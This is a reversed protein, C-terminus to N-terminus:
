SQGRIDNFSACIVDELEDLEQGIMQERRDLIRGVVLAPIAVALGMQTSILAVSIGGAIGGSQSFLSMTGLSDFTEIMGTVTGLLGALPAAAVISKVLTSFRKMDSKLSGFADDLYSRLEAQRPLGELRALAVGREVARTIVGASDLGEGDLGRSVLERLSLRSGRQLTMLRWGLAFWLVLTAVVLPGMVFGGSALFSLLEDFIGALM